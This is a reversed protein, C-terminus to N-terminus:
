ANLQPADAEIPKVFKNVGMFVLGWFVIFGFLLGLHGSSFISKNSALMFTPAVSADNSTFNFVVKETSTSSFQEMFDYGLDFSIKAEPKLSSTEYGPVVLSNEGMTMDTLYESQSGSSPAEIQVNFGALGFKSQESIKDIDVFFELNNVSDMGQEKFFRWLEGASLEVGAGADSSMCYSAAGIKVLCPSCVFDGIMTQENANGEAIVIEDAFAKAGCDPALCPVFLICMVAFAILNLHRSRQNLESIWNAM